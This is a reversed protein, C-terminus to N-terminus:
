KALTLNREAFETLAARPIRRARGFRAYPLKGNDMLLYITARSLSLFEGAEKVTAMGREVLSPKDSNM